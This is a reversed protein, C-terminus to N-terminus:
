ASTMGALHEGLRSEFDELSEVAERSFSNWHKMASVM